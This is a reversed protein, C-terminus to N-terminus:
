LVVERRVEDRIHELSVHLSSSLVDFSNKMLVQEDHRRLLGRVSIRVGFGDILDHWKVAAPLSSRGM